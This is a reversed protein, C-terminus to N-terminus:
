ARHKPTNSTKIFQLDRNEVATIVEVEQKTPIVGPTSEAVTATAASVSKLLAILAAAGAVSLVGSWEVSEFGTIGFGAALLVAALTQAFTNITREGADLLFKKTFIKM